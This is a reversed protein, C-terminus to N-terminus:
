KNLRGLHPMAVKLVDLLLAKEQPTCQNILQQLEDGSQEIEEGKVLYDLSLHLYDSIKLLTDYSMKRVGREIQGVFYTSVGILEAFRERSIGLRNRGEVIREGITESKDM